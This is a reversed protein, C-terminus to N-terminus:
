ACYVLCYESNACPLRASSLIGGLYGPQMAVACLALLMDLPDHTPM